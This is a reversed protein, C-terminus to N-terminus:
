AGESRDRALAEKLTEQTDVLEITQEVDKAAQVGGMRAFYAALGAAVAAWAAMKDKLHPPVLVGVQDVLSPAALAFAVLGAWFTKQRWFPTHTVTEM